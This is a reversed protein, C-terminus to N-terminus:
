RGNINNPKTHNKAAKNWTETSERPPTPQTRWHVVFIFSVEDLGSALAELKPKASSPLLLIFQPGTFTPVSIIMRLNDSNNWGSLKYNIKFITPLLRALFRSFIMYWRITPWMLPKYFRSFKNSNSFICHVHFLM